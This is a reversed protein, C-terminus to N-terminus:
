SNLAKDRRAGEGEDVEAEPDMDADVVGACIGTLIELGVVVTTLSREIKELALEAPSRHDTRAGKALKAIQVAQLDFIM